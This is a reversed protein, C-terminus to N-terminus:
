AAPSRETGSDSSLLDGMEDEAKAMRDRIRDVSSQMETAGVFTCGQRRAALATGARDLMIPDCVTQGPRVFRELLVAMDGEHEATRGSLGQRPPVEVLDHMGDPRFEGKTYVLVPRRHLHMLLTPRRRTVGTVRLM